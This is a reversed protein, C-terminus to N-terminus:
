DAPPQLIQPLNMLADQIPLIRIGNDEREHTGGYLLHCRAMPYDKRFARLGKLDHGSYHRSRKIEFALLGQEGYLVFDVETGDSTRWYFLKYNFGLADNIARLEQLVLTELSAGEAEEPTDLPGRPRIARYVGADFYYFKPHQVIRRKARKTFPPLRYGILLDELISFYSDVVKRDLSADRAIQSINLPSAQSFSATELFRTFNALNRTLGEQLVEERLYTQVYSKLYAEPAQHGIAMPLQGFRIAHTIDFDKGLEAATLPHMTYTLARGALLNVGKKRLNRASSGTLAFCPGKNEIIRHVENLLSPIKQIEDLIVRRTSNKIYTQLKQPHALLETYIGSDLLDLYLTDPSQFHERLWTTKGTGRPGFLFFSSGSKIPQKTLRTYMITM